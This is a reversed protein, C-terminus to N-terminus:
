IEDILRSAESILLHADILKERARCRNCFGDKPPAENEPWGFPEHCRACPITIMKVEPENEGMIEDM